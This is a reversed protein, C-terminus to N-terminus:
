LVGWALMGIFGALGGLYTFWFVRCYTDDHDFEDAVSIDFTTM